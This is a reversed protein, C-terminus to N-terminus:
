CEGIEDSGTKELKPTDANVEDALRAAQIPKQKVPTSTFQPVRNEAPVSSSSGSNLFEFLQEDTKKRAILASSPPRQAGKSPPANSRM